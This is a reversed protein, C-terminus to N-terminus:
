KIDMFFQHIFYYDILTVKRDKLGLPQKSFYKLVSPVGFNVYYLDEEPVANLLTGFALFERGQLFAATKGDSILFYKAQLSYKIQM